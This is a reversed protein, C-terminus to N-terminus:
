GRPDSAVQAAFRAEAATNTDTGARLDDEDDDGGHRPVMDEDRESPGGSGRGPIAMYHQGDATTLTVAGDEDVDLNTVAITQKMTDSLWSLTGLDRDTAVRDRLVVDVVDGEANTSAVISYPEDGRVIAFTFTQHHARVADIEDADALLDALRVQASRPSTTVVTDDPSGLSAAVLPLIALMM